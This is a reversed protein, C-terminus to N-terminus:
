FNRFILRLRLVSILFTLHAHSMSNFGITRLLETTGKRVGRVLLRKTGETEDQDPDYDENDHSTTDDLDDDILIDNADGAPLGDDQLVPKLNDPIDEGRTVLTSEASTPLSQVVGPICLLTVAFAAFHQPYM